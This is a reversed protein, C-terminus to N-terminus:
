EAGGAPSAARVTVGPEVVGCLGLVPRLAQAVGEPNGSELEVWAARVARQLRALPEGPEAVTALPRRLTPEAPYPHECPRADACSGRVNSDARGAELERWGAEIRGIAHSRAEDRSCARQATGGHLQRRLAVAAAEPVEITGINVRM